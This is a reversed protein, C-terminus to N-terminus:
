REGRDVEFPGDAAIVLAVGGLFAEIQEPEWKDFESLDIRVSVNFSIGEPRM